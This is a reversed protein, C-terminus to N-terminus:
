YETLTSLKGFIMNVYLCMRCSAIYKDYVHFKERYSIKASCSTFLIKAIINKRIVPEGHFPLMKHVM